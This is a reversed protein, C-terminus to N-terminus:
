RNTSPLPLQLSLSRCTELKEWGRTTIDQPSEQTMFTIQSIDSMNHTMLAPPAHKLPSKLPVETTLKQHPHSHTPVTRHAMLFLINRSSSFKSQSVEEVGWDQERVAFYLPDSGAVVKAIKMKQLIQQGCSNM